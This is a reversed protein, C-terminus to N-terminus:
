SAGKEITVNKYYYLLISQYDYGQEALGRAGWQSMGLGHGFGKGTFVFQPTTTAARLSGSGDMIFLNPGQLQKVSGDAGIVQISGQQRPVEITAGDKGVITYRGTEELTFLTSKLSTGNGGLAGRLNDGVGVNVPVGNASVETARGSPGRKTVELTLLPGSIPSKARKNLATLLQEPTMPAEIWSYETYEPVVGLQVLVTGSGVRAIPEATSAQPKNRVAVGDGKVNLLNAGSIHKQGSAAVLDSRVFGTQGTPLAVYYWNLLGKQPGEDPSPAAVAFNTSDNGWIETLNDATIGGSNSSFVASIARGGSSLIEGKTQDVGATSNANESGIGSYVQSLTTDVVSAIQFGVGSSLAYTRAAVAQAKQAELPWSSGIEAGVVSYLYQEFPVDNVVALSQNLVSMEMSGRYTRKSREVLQIGGAGAPDARLVAGAGSSIAYLPIAKNASGNYTVDMRIAAYPETAAPIRAGTAGTASVSQQISQLQASSAEQGVRVVYTMAGNQPKLAAFADLGAAGITAAAAKADALSAYPGAEVAWPGVVRASLLTQVGSAVGANTWKTLASSATAATAYVGEQVQYVTKGSKQLQTIFAASSSAQVKKLVALAATVDTTELLLARYGDMSFRAAQGAAVSDAAVSFQPDRWVINMGGAAQLTAVSTLAQYKSTLNLFLAVRITDPVKVAAHVVARTSGTAVAAVLLLLFALRYYRRNNHVIM